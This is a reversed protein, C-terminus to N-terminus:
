REAKKRTSKGNSRAADELLLDVFGKAATGLPQHRRHVIGLPRMLRCGDLRVAKLTGAQIEQRLMPEPLLGVGSGIEIGKKINEINDFELVIEVEAEHDRLFRDVNQRIVM